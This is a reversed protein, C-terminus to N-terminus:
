EPRLLEIYKAVVKIEEDSIKAHFQAAEGSIPRKGNKLQTLHDIVYWEFQGAILPGQKEANGEGKEGHCTMCQADGTYVAIAAKIKPDELDIVVKKEEEEANEDVKPANLRALEAAREKKISEIKASLYAHDLVEDKKFEPKYTSLGLVFALICLFGILLILRKGM